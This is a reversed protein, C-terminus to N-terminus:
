NLFNNVENICLSGSIFTDLRCQPTAHQYYTKSVVTNDQLDLSPYRWDSKLSAFLNGVRMAAPLIKECIDSHCKENKMDIERAFFQPEEQIMLPLCKSTAFYDAQGEASSWSRRKSSGRFMKPAGGMHHGLEHCLILMLAEANMEPHRAMGGNIVIVPNNDDDRTAFANVRSADWERKIVLKKNMKKEVIPSWYSVFKDMVTNYSIENMGGPSLTQFSKQFKNKKVPFSLRNEPFCNIAQASVTEILVFTVLMLIM